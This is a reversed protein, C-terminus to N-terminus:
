GVLTGILSLLNQALHRLASSARDLWSVKDGAHEGSGKDAGVTHVAEDPMDGVTFVKCNLM